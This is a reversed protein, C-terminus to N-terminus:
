FNKCLVVRVIKLDGKALKHMKALNEAFGIADSRFVNITFYGYFNGKKDVLVPVSKDSSYENWPSSISFESGFTGFENFISNSDFENGKGFDNCISDSGFEGCDLCGLFIDHGDGGFLLLEAHAPDSLLLMGILAFAHRHNMHEESRPIPAKTTKSL